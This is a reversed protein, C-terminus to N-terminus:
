DQSAIDARLLNFLRGIAADAESATPAAVSITAGVSGIAVAVYAMHRDHMTVEMPLRLLQAWRPKADRDVRVKSKPVEDTAAAIVSAKNKVSELFGGRVLPGRVGAESVVEEVVQRADGDPRAVRIDWHRYFHGRKGGHATAWLIEEVGSRRMLDVVREAMTADHGDEVMAQHYASPDLVRIHAPLPHVWLPHESAEFPGSAGLAIVRTLTPVTM